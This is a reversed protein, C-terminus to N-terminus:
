EADVGSVFVSPNLQQTLPWDTCQLFGSVYKQVWCRSKWIETTPYHTNFAYLQEIESSFMFKLWVRAVVWVIQVWRDYLQIMQMYRSTLFRGVFFYVRGLRATHCLQMCIPLFTMFRASCFRDRAVGNGSYPFPLSLLYRAWVGWFLWGIGSCYKCWFTVPLSVTGSLLNPIGIVIALLPERIWTGSTRLPAGM